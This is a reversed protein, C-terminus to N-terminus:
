CACGGNETLRPQQNVTIIADRRVGVGGNMLAPTEVIKTVTDVFPEKVNERTKSSVEFFTAGHRQALAEGEERKVTRLSEKDLKGGVKGLILGSLKWSLPPPSTIGLM